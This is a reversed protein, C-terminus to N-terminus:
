NRCDFSVRIEMSAEWFVVDSGTSFWQKLPISLIGWDLITGLMLATVVNLVIESILM